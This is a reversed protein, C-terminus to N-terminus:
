GSSSRFEGGIFLVNCVVVVPLVVKLHTRWRWNTWCWYSDIRGGHTIMIFSNQMNKKLKDSFYDASLLSRGCCIYNYLVMDNIISKSTSKSSGVRM